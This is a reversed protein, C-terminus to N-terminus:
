DAPAVCDAGPDAIEVTGHAQANNQPDLVTVDLNAIDAHAEIVQEVAIPVIQMTCMESTSVTPITVAVITGRPEALQAPEVAQCAGGDFTATLLVREADLRCASLDTFSPAEEAFVASAFLGAILLAPLTTFPAPM